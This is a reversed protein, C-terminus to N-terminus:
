GTSPFYRLLRPVKRSFDHFDRLMRLDRRKSNRLGSKLLLTVWPTRIREHWPVLNFDFLKPIPQGEEEVVMVNMAHLDIDFLGAAHAREVIKEIHGFLESPLVGNRAQYYFYYLEGDLPEQILASVGPTHFFGIPRAIYRSLGPAEFFARNRRYEFEALPEPHKRRHKEMGYPKYVKLAVREGRWDGEYVISRGGEGLTGVIQFEGL